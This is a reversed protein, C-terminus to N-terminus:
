NTGLKLSIFRNESRIFWPFNQDFVKSAYRRFYNNLPEELKDSLLEFISGRHLGFM